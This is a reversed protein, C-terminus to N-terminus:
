DALAAAHRADREHWGDHFSIDAAGCARFVDDMIATVRLIETPPIPPESGQLISAYFLELLNHMGSFFHLESRLFRRVNRLWARRAERVQAWSLELKIFPGRLAPPREVRVTQADLNIEVAARTGYLRTVRQVPRAVSSFLLSGTAREGRLLVRLESPFTPSAPSEYWHAWVRPREDRVFEAIRYVAHSITNQFLGGPLRHVWHQPDDALQMGFPSALDYGLVSDVHVAQGFEGADFRRRCELWAPDFLQDHGVCIKRGHAAAAALMEAAERADLAFPKEVYVHAGAALAAITLERHTHPPTTIPVVDPRVRALMEGAADFSVPAGFRAAAQEALDRHADCTAVLEASPLRRIAALHADAIQGCGILAARLTATM